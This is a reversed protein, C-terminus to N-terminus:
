PADTFVYAFSQIVAFKGGIDIFLFVRGALEAAVGVLRCSFGFVMGLFM